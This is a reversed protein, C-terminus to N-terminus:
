KPCSHPLVFSHAGSDLNGIRDILAHLTAGSAFANRDLFQDKTAELENEFISRALGPSPDFKGEYSGLLGTRKVDIIGFDVVENREGSM